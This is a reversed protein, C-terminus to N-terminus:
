AVPEAAPIHMGGLKETVAFGLERLKACYLAAAHHEKLSLEPQEWIQDAIDEFYAAHADVWAAAAQKDRNEFM